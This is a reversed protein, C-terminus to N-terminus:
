TERKVSESYNNITDIPRRGLNRYGQHPRDTTYRVLWADQDAQLAKVPEYFQPTMDRQRCVESVNGLTHALELM